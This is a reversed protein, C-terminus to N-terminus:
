KNRNMTYLLVAGITGLVLGTISAAYAFFNLFFTSEIMQLVMLFPLVFGTLVLVFGVLLITKPQFRNM